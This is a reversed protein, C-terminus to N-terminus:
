LTLDNLFIGCLCCLDDWWLLMMLPLSMFFHQGMWDNLINGMVCGVCLSWTSCGRRTVGVDYMLSVLDSPFMLLLTM